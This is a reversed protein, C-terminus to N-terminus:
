HFVQDSLFTFLRQSGAGALAWAALAALLRRHQQYFPRGCDLASLLCCAFGASVIFLMLHLALLPLGLRTCALVVLFLLPWSAMSAIFLRWPSTMFGALWHFEDGTVDPKRASWGLTLGFKGGGVGSANASLVKMCGAIVISVLVAQVVPAEFGDGGKFGFAM